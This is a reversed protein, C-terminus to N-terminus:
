GSGREPTADLLSWLAAESSATEDKSSICDHYHRVGKYEYWWRGPYHRTPDAKVFGMDQLTWIPDVKNEKQGCALLGTVFPQLSVVHALPVGMRLPLDQWWWNSADMCFFPGLIRIADLYVDERTNSYDVIPRLTESILGLMGYLKDRPDECGMSSFQRLLNCLLHSYGPRVPEAHAYRNSLLYTMPSLTPHELFGAFLAAKFLVDWDMWVHGCLIHAKKPLMVEQVIWLRTFYRNRLIAETNEANRNKSYRRAARLSSLDLWVIVYICESYIRAMLRVQHNREATDQQNICIQTILNTWAHM